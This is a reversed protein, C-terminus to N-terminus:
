NIYDFALCGLGIGRQLEETISRGVFVSLFDTREYRSPILRTLNHLNPNDKVLEDWSDEQWGGGILGFQSDSIIRTQDATLLNGM